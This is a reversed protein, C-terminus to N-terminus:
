LHNNRFVKKYIGMYIFIFLTAPLYHAFLHHIPSSNCFVNMLWAGFLSAASSALLFTRNSEFLVGKHFFYIFQIMPLFSFYIVQMACKDRHIDDSLEINFIIKFIFYFLWLIFPYSLRLQNKQDYSGPIISLLAQYTLAIIALFMIVSEFVFLPNSFRQWSSSEIPSFIFMLSATFILNSFIWIFTRKESSLLVKVPKLDKALQSIFDKNDM